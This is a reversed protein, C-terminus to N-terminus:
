TGNFEDKSSRASTGLGYAKGYVYSENIAALSEWDHEECILCM